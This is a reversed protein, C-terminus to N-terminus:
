TSLNQDYWSRLRKKYLTRLFEEAEQALQVDTRDRRRSREGFREQFAQLRKAADNGDSFYAFRFWQLKISPWKAMDALLKEWRDAPDTPDDMAAGALLLMPVAVSNGLAVACQLANGFCNDWADIDTKVVHSDLFDQLASLNSHMIAEYIIPIDAPDNRYYGSSM